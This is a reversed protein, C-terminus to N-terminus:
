SRAEEKKENKEEKRYLESNKQGTTWNLFFFIM